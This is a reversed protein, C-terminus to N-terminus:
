NPYCLVKQKIKKYSKWLKYVPTAKVRNIKIQCETLLQTQKHFAWSLQEKELKLSYYAQLYSIIEQLQPFTKSDKFVVGLGFSHAFEITRFDKKLEEWLKYVGFGPKKVVIDHILIVGESKVKPLWTHYDHSVAKYTHLGDIHLLDISNNSYKSNAEDFTKQILNIKEKPYCTKRIEKVRGLILQEDYYGSQEDGKWTDIADLQSNLKADQVAQALSFLSCGLHTGLEVVKRPKLNMMLDYGFYKHGAWPGGLDIYMREYKFRPSYLQWKM